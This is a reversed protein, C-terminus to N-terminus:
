LNMEVQGIEQEFDILKRQFGAAPVKLNWAKIRRNLEAAQTRFSTLAKEWRFRAGSENDTGIANQLVTRVRSLQQRALEFEADIDKREEIWSPAFGANRLLRHAM